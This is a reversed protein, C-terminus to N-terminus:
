AGMKALALKKAEVRSTENEHEKGSGMKLSARPARM